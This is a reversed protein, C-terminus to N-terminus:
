GGGVISIAAYGPYTTDNVTVTQPSSLAPAKIFQASGGKFYVAIGSTGLPSATTISATVATGGTASWTLPTPTPFGGVSSLLVPLSDPASSNLGLAATQEVFDYSSNAPALNTAPATGSFKQESSGSIILMGADSIYNGTFLGSTFTPISLGCPYVNNNDNSYAFEALGIARSGQVAGSQQAKKIGSTIPGLAVGALIAIIAIVVLLEVLTFGGRNARATRCQLRHINLMFYIIHWPRSATL